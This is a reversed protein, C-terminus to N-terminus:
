TLNKKPRVNKAYDVTGVVCYILLSITTAIMIGSLGFQMKAVLFITLPVNIIAAITVCAKQLGLVEMGNSLYALTAFWILVSVLTAMMIHEVTTIAISENPLWISFIIPALLVLSFTIIILSSTFKLMKDFLRVLGKYENIEVYKTYKPWARINAITHVVIVIGYYKYLVEYRAVAESNLMNGAIIKDSILIIFICFQLYFFQGGLKMINLVIQRKYFRFKPKTQKVKKSFYVLMGFNAIILSSGYIVAMSILDPTLYIDAIFLGILILIQNLLQSLTILQNEGYSSYIAVSASLILNLLVFSLAIIMAQYSRTFNIIGTEILAFSTISFIILISVSVVALCIYTNSILRTQKYVDNASIARALQNKCGNSIGFDSFTAFSIVTLLYVWNGFQQVGLYLITQRIVLFSAAIALIKYIFSRSLEHNAIKRIM